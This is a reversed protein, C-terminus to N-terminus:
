FHYQGGASLMVVDKELGIMISTGSSTDTYSDTKYDVIAAGLDIKLDKNVQYIIGGGYSNANLEPAEKLAYRADIGTRTHLFGISGKLNDSFKYEISVSTDWGDEVNREAGGWDADEQFYFILGTDIKLRQTFTYALGISFLAPLNRQHEASNIIGGARGIGSPFGTITDQKVEYQFDLETETEYKMGIYLPEFDIGLGFIMGWGNANDEQDLVATRIPQGAAIGLPTPLLEFTARCKKNADIFRGAISVSVANNIKYAAGATLGYYFGEANLKENATDGYIAAGALQNLRNRLSIASIRTSANGNEYDVEGGGAPITFSFFGAWMDDKYLGFLAPVFSPTDQKSAIGDVTNTYDKFVYHISLNSQFGDEMKMIGAPNYAIADLSDTAANRTLTRVYEGSYNSRNDVGGALIYQGSIFFLCAILLVFFVKKM